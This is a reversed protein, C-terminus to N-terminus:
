TGHRTAPLQYRPSIFRGAEDEGGIQGEFNQAAFAQGSGYQVTEGPAITLRAARCPIGATAKVSLPLKCPATANTRAARLAPM